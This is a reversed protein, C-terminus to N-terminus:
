KEDPIVYWPIRRGIKARVKWAMSKPEREMQELITGVKDRIHEAKDVPLVQNALEVLKQLNDSVTTHWGWNAGTVQAIRRVNLGTDNESLDQDLLIAMADTMDKKNIQVIQLKTLLLDAPPLTAHSPRLRDKIDLKHCQEFEGVFVDMDIDGLHYLLRKDGYLVNFSHDPVFGLSTVVDEFSKVAKHAVIADLDHYHRALPPQRVSPCILYVAMGGLMNAELQAEVLRQAFLMALEEMSTEGRVEDEVGFM